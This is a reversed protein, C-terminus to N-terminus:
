RRRTWFWGAKGIGPLSTLGVASFFASCGAGALSLGAGLSPLAAGAVGAASVGLDLSCGDSPLVSGLGSPLAASVRLSGAVALSPGAGLSPLAADAAGAASVGLGLSCGASPLVSGLGSPLVASVGM